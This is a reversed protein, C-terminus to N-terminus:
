TIVGFILCQLVVPAVTGTISTVNWFIREKDLVALGLNNYSRRIQGATLTATHLVSSSTGAANYKKTELVMGAPQSVLAIHLDTITRTKGTPVNQCLGILLENVGLLVEASSVVCEAEWYQANAYAIDATDQADNATAAAAAAAAAAADAAAQAAAAQAAADDIQSGFGDLQDFIDGINESVGATADVVDQKSAIQGFGELLNGSQGALPQSM